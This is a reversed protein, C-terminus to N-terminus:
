FLRAWRKARKRKKRDTFIVKKGPLLNINKLMDTINQRRTSKHDGLVTIIEIANGRDEWVCFGTPKGADNTRVIMTKRHDLFFKEVAVFAFGAFNPDRDIALRAM